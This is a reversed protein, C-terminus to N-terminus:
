SQSLCRATFTEIKDMAEAFSAATLQLAPHLAFQEPALGKEEYAEVFYPIKLLRELVEDPVSEEVQPEIPVGAYNALFAEFINPFVTMVSGAGALKELHWVRTVGDVVPGLRMSAAMLKSPYGREQYLRYVKRFIAIGAWRLDSDTLEIGLERAQAKMPPADEYRGLMMVACSRWCSLDTGRQRAEVLGARAAEGVALMQSVTFGLTVNTPIGEATCTRVAAVGEKTGPLKVMINSRAAHINRAQTLMAELDTVDRPDVQCCIQGHRHQSNGFIPALMDAGRAAIEVFVRGAVEKATLEPNERHQAAIWDTWPDPYTELIQWTLPQNTTAGELLSSPAFRPGAADKESVEFLGADTFAHGPGVLWDRYVLPSSDWWVELEPNTRRLARVANDISM